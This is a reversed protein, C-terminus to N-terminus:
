CQATGSWSGDDTPDNKYIKGNIITEDNPYQGTFIYLDVSCYFLFTIVGLAYIGCIPASIPTPEGLFTGSITGDFTAYPVGINSSQIEYEIIQLQNLTLLNIDNSNVTITWDRYIPSSNTTLIAVGANSTPNTAAATTM